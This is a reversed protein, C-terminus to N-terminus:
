FCWIVVQIVNCHYRATKIGLGIFVVLV